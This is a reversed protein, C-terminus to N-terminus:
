LFILITMKGKGGNNEQDKTKSDDEDSATSARKLNTNWIKNPAFM